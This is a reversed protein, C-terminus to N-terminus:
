YLGMGVINEVQQINCGSFINETIIYCTDLSFNRYCTDLSINGNQCEIGSQLKGYIIIIKISSHFTQKRKKVSQLLYPFM